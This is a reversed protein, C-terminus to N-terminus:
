VTWVFWMVHSSGWMWHKSSLLRVLGCLAARGPLVYANELLVSQFRTPTLNVIYTIHFPLEGIEAWWAPVYVSRYLQVDKDSLIRTVHM